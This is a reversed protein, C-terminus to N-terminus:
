SRVTPLSFKIVRRKHYSSDHSQHWKIVFKSCNTLLVFIRKLRELAYGFHSGEIEHFVEDREWYNAMVSRNIEGSLMLAVEEMIARFVDLSEQKCRWVIADAFGWYFIKLIKQDPLYKSWLHKGKMVVWRICHCWWDCSHKRQGAAVVESSMNSKRQNRALYFWVSTLM